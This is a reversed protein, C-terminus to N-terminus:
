PMSFYSISRRPTSVTLSVSLSQAGSYSAGMMWFFCSWPVRALGIPLVSVVARVSPSYGNNLGRSKISYVKPWSVYPCTSLSSASLSLALVVPRNSHTFTGIRVTRSFIETAPLDRSISTLASSLPSALISTALSTNFLVVGGLRLAISMSIVQKFQVLM